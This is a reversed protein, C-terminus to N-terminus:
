IPKYTKFHNTAYFLNMAHPVPDAREVFKRVFIVGGLYKVRKLKREAENPWGEVRGPFAEGRGEGSPFPPWLPGISRAPPAGHTLDSVQETQVRTAAGAAARTPTHLLQPELLRLTKPTVQLYQSDGVRMYCAYRGPGRCPRSGPESRVARRAPVSPAEPAAALGGVIIRITRKAKSCPPAM